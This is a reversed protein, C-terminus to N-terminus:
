LSGPSTSAAPAHVGVKLLLFFHSSERKNKGDIYDLPIRQFATFDICSPRVGLSEPKLSKFAGCIIRM